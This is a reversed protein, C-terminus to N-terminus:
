SDHAEADEFVATIEAFQDSLHERRLTECRQCWLEAPTDARNECQGVFEAFGICMKQRPNRTRM